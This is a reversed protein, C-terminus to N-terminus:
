VNDDIMKLVTIVKDKDFYRELFKDKGSSVLTDSAKNLPIKINRKQLESLIVDNTLHQEHRLHDVYKYIGLIKLSKKTKPSYEFNEDSTRLMYKFIASYMEILNHMKPKPRRYGLV